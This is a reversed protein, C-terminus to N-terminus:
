KKSELFRQLEKKNSSFTFVARLEFYNDIDFTHEYAMKVFKMKDNEFTLVESLEMVQNVTMCHNDLAHEIVAFQGETFSEKQVDAKVKEVDMLPRINCGVNGAYNTVWTHSMSQPNMNTPEMPRTPIPENPRAVGDLSGTNNQGVTSNPRTVGDLTASNNPRSTGTDQSNSMTGSSSGSITANSQSSTQHSGSMSESVQVNMSFGNEGINVNVNAGSSNLEDNVQTNTSISTSHSGGQVGVQASANPASSAEPQAPAQPMETANGSSVPRAPAQPMSASYPVELQDSNTAGSIPREGAFRMRYRKKRRIIEMSIEKGSELFSVSQDVDPITNNQFVVRLRYFDGELQTIKVNTQPVDNQRVGNVIVFFPEPENTFVVLHNMQGIAHSMMTGAIMLLFYYQKM